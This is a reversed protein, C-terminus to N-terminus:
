SIHKRYEACDLLEGNLQYYQEILKVCEFGQKQLVKASAPNNNLVQAKLTHIGLEKAKEILHNLCLSALGQSLFAQGVRYGVYAEGEKIEKLNGRAVVQNNHILLTAFLTQEAMGQVLQEIHEHVGSVSYFSDVRPAIVSEFWVRNETEFEYLATLHEAAVVEFKM